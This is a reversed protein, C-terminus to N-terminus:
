SIKARASELASKNVIKEAFMDALKELEDESKNKSFSMVALQRLIPTSNNHRIHWIEHAIIAELETKEVLELLGLSLFIAKGSAFARPIASDYYYITATTGLYNVFGEPWDMIESIPRADYRKILIRYYVRPLFLIIATSFAVYGLYIEISLMRSCQMAHVVTAIASIILLQSGALSLLRSMPRDTRFYIVFMLLALLLSIGILPLLSSDNICSVYCEVENRISFM